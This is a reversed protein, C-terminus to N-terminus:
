NRWIVGECGIGMIGARGKEVADRSTRGCEEVLTGEDVSGAIRAGPQFSPNLQILPAPWLHGEALKEEVVRDIGLDRILVFSRVSRSYEAVLRDRLDFVNM